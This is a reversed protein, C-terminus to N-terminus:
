LYTAPVFRGTAFVAQTKAARVIGVRYDVGAAQLRDHVATVTDQEGAREADDLILAFDAPPDDLMALIGRRSHRATGVPGDCVVVDFTRGTKAAQWDYTMAMRGDITVQRLPTVMLEHGVQAGIRAGWDADHELTLVDGVLQRRQLMSWLLSSQGAGIDLVSAPRLEVGIRLILYLLSYNAAGGTPFFRDEEGLRALERLFLDRYIVELAPEIAFPDPRRTLRRLHRLSPM